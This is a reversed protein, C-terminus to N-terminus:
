KGFLKEVCGPAYPCSSLRAATGRLPSSTAHGAGYCSQLVLTLQAYVGFPHDEDRVDTAGESGISAHRRWRVGFWFFPADRLPCGRYAPTGM